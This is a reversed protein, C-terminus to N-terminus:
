PSWPVPDEVPADAIREADIVALLRRLVLKVNEGSVASMTMIDGAGEKILADRVDEAYGAPAADIKTLAIVEKKTDIGSGYASLEDRLIKWAAVPDDGTVDVLHLLVRCREVHGLFRHGLGAGRHAGEILGPIDAMVFEREDVGVVGLNPHLTTFPYDAIKPRAASVASLLTSKGANPLGLLGADAILKLRLWVWM